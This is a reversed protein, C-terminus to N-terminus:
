TKPVTGPEILVIEDPPSGMIATAANRACATLAQRKIADLQATEGLVVIRETGSAPDSVGFAAVGGKIFGDIEGIAEELEQPYIHQGARIIIDKIRGTIFVEGNAMYARDGSDLWGDHFLERTKAENRFYGSTASPGRFELRGERREEVERSADDVIRIEHGPLPHGCSIIEVAHADGAAAPEAIGRRTLAERNVRDILPERGPPPLAVAVACEALGYVPAMATSRFGYRGFREVFRRLTHISVPEAGNAVLRLSSLDLGKLDSDDIQKLCLEFAFNPAASITARYRHCAWLWSQPHALFSLPSMIYCRAGVYLPALWAGILGMDHYLPLWSVLIDAPTADIATFM